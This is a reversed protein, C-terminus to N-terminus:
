PGADAFCEPLQRGFAQHRADRILAVNDGRDTRFFGRLEILHPRRQLTKGAAYEHTVGRRLGTIVERLRHPVDLSGRAGAHRDQFWLVVEIVNQEGAATVVRQPQNRAAQVGAYAHQSRQGQGQRAARRLAERLQM